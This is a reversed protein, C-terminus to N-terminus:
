YRVVYTLCFHYLDVEEVRGVMSRFTMWDFNLFHKPKINNKGSQENTMFVKYNEKDDSLKKTISPRCADQEQSLEQDAQM